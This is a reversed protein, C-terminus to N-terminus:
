VQSCHSLGCGSVNVPESTENVTVAARVGALSFLRNIVPSLVTLMFGRLKTERGGSHLKINLETDINSASFASNM